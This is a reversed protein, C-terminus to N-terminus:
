CTIVPGPVPGKGIGHHAPVPLTFVADVATAEVDAIDGACGQFASLGLPGSQIPMM